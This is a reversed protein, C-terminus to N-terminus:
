KEYNNVPESTAGIERELQKRAPALTKSTATDGASAWDKQVAANMQDQLEALKASTLTGSVDPVWQGSIKDRKVMKSYGM